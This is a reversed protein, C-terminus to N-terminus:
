GRRISTHAKSSYTPQPTTHVSGKGGFVGAICMPDEANCIALDQNSLKHTVGDLTVFPTGEPMTRVVIKNGKIMDADFCHLPQGYAFMIYNTIDVINNIPRQGITQLKAEVM